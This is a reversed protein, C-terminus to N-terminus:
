GLALASNAIRTVLNATAPLLLPLSAAGVALTVAIRIPFALQFINLAPSTRALLGLALEAIFLIVVFPAAIELGAVFVFGLQKVINESFGSLDFGSVAVVDFSKLFGQIVILHAGSAFMLMTAVLQYMRAFVSSSEGLSPDYQQSLNFGGSHDVMSGAFHIANFILAGIFGLATGVVVQTVLAGLFAFTETPIKADALNPSAAIALGIALPAKLKMPIGRHSFPPAVVVWATARTLALAFILLTDINIPIVM